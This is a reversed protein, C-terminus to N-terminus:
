QPLPCQSGGVLQGLVTKQKGQLVRLEELVMGAQVSAHKGGPYYIISQVESGTALKLEINDKILTAKSM